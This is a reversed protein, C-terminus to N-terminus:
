ATGETRRALAEGARARAWADAALVDSLDRLARPGLGVGTSPIEAEEPLHALTGAPVLSKGEISSARHTGSEHM